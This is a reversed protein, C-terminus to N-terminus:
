VATQGTEGGRRAHCDVTQRPEGTVGCQTAPCLAVEADAYYAVPADLATVFRVGLRVRLPKLTPTIQWLRIWRQSLGCVLDSLDSLDSVVM